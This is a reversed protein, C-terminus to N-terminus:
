LGIFIFNHGKSNSGSEILFVVSSQFGAQQNSVPRNTPFGPERCVAKIVVPDKFELIDDSTKTSM